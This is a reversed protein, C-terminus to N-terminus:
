QHCGGGGFRGPFRPPCSVPRSEADITSDFYPRALIPVSSSDVQYRTTGGGLFLYDAEIGFCQCPTLWYGFAFRGGSRAGGTVTDNGFLTVTRPEGLVGSLEPTTGVPSSTVLAPVDSGKTWWLLYEGRVWLRDRLQSTLPCESWDHRPGAWYNEDGLYDSSGELIRESPDCSSNSPEVYPQADSVAKAPKDEPFAIARLGDPGASRVPADPSRAIPSSEVGATM